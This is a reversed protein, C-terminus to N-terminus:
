AVKNKKIPKKKVPRDVFSNLARSVNGQLSLIEVLSQGKPLKKPKSLYFPIAFSDADEIVYVANESETVFSESVFVYCKSDQWYVQIKEYADSSGDVLRWILVDKESPQQDTPLTCPLQFYVEHGIQWAKLDTALQKCLTRLVENEIGKFTLPIKRLLGRLIKIVAEAPYEILDKEQLPKLKGKAIFSALLSADKTRLEIKSKNVSQLDSIYAVLIYRSKDEVVIGQIPKPVALDNFTILLGDPILGSYAWDLILLQENAYVKLKSEAM